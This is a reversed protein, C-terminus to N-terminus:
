LLLCGIISWLYHGGIKTIGRKQLDLMYYRLRQAYEIANFDAAYTGLVLM